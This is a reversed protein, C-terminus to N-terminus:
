GGDVRVSLRQRNLVRGTDVGAELQAGIIDKEVGALRRKGVALGPLGDAVGDIAGPDELEEVEGRALGCHRALDERRVEGAV